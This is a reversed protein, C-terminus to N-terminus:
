QDLGAAFRQDRDGDWAHVGTAALAPFRSAPLARVFAHLQERTATDHLRQSMESWFLKVLSSEPGPKGHCGAVILMSGLSLILVASRAKLLSEVQM